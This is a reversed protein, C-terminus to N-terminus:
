GIWRHHSLHSPFFYPLIHFLKKKRRKHLRQAATQRAATAHATKGSAFPVCFTYLITFDLWIERKHCACQQGFAYIASRPCLCRENHAMDSNILACSYCVVTFCIAASITTIMVCVSELSNQGVHSECQQRLCKYLLCLLTILDTFLHLFRLFWFNIFHNPFIHIKDTELNFKMQSTTPRKKREM